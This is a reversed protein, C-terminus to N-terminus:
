ESPEVTIAPADGSLSLKVRMAAARSASMPQKARFVSRGPEDPAISSTIDEIFDTGTKWEIMDTSYQVEYNLDSIGPKRKFSLTLFGNEGAPKPLRARDSAGPDGDPSMGFGYRLLMPLGSDGSAISATAPASNEALWADYTLIKPVIMLQASPVTVSYSPDPKITMRVIKAEADGFSVNAKPNITIV